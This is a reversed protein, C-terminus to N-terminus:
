HVCASVSDSFVSHNIKQTTSQSQPNQNFCVKSVYGRFVFSVNIEELLTLYLAGSM